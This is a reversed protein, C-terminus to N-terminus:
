LPQFSWFTRGKDIDIGGARAGGEPAPFPAGRRVWEELDAIERPSLKKAPPMRLTDHEHRVAQVLLSKQVDGPVLAPGSDGGRLIAPGSDLLRGGRKKTASSHCSQCRSVLLPRVSREFFAVDAASPARPAPGAPPASAALASAPLLVCALLASRMRRGRSHRS